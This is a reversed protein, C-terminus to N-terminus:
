QVAVALSPNVYVPASDIRWAVTPDPGAVAATPPFARTAAYVSFHCCGAPAGAPLQYYLERVHANDGAHMHWHAHPSPGSSPFPLGTNIDILQPAAAGCGTAGVAFNRLHDASIRVALRFQVPAHGNRPVVACDGIPLDSWASGPHRWQFSLFEVTPPTTDIQLNVPTTQSGAIVNIASGSQQGFELSFTHLHDGAESVPALIGVPTWGEARPVIPYWQGDVPSVVRQQLVGGVVKALPGYSGNLYTTNGGDVQHRVRYHTAGPREACGVLYFSGLFPANAPEVRAGEGPIGNEDPRNPLRAYGTAADHYASANPPVQLPYNSAFLIAPEGCPGVDPIDCNPNAIATADARLVIDGIDREDWRVDFLGESYIVEQQGDGDIDQTVEFALDPVDLVASWEAVVVTRCRLFPGFARRPDLKAIKELPVGVRAALKPLVKPDLAKAAAATLPARTSQPFAPRLLAPDVKPTPAQPRVVKGVERLKAVAKPDIVRRAHEIIHEDLKLPGPDPKPIPIVERQHLVDAINPKRLWTVFCERELRFRLYYDVDFRPVHVCFRGCEDTTVTAIKERRVGFPWFWSYQSGGPSWALFNFDVDYVHVTAFPV